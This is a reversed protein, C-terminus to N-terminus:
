GTADDINGYLEGAEGLAISGRRHQANNGSEEYFPKALESPKAKKEEM